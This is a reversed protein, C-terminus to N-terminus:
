GPRRGRGAHRRGPPRRGASARRARFSGLHRRGPPARDLRSRRRRPRSGPPEVGPPGPGPPRRPSAGPPRARERGRRTGSATAQTTRRDAPVERAVASVFPLDDAVHAGLRLRGSPAALALAASTGIRAPYRDRALAETVRDVIRPDTPLIRHRRAVAWAQVNGVRGGAGGEYDPGWHDVNQLGADLYRDPGPTAPRTATSASRTPARRHRKFTSGRDVGSAPPWAPSRPLRGRPGGRGRRRVAAGPGAAGAGDHRRGARWRGAGPRDEARGLRRAATRRLRRGHRRRARRGLPGPGHIAPDAGAALDAHDLVVGGPCPAQVSDAPVVALLVALALTM